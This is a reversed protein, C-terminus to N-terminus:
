HLDLKWESKAGFNRSCVQFLLSALICRESSPGVLCWSRVGQFIRYFFFAGRWSGTRSAKLVCICISIGTCLWSVCILYWDPVLSGLSGTSLWGEVVVTEVSVFVGLRWNEFVPPRLNLNRFSHASVANNNAAPGFPVSKGPWARVTAPADNKM